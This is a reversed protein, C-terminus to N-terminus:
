ETVALMEELGLVLAEVLAVGGLAQCALISPHTKLLGLHPGPEPAPDEKAGAAPAATAEDGEEREAEGHPAECAPPRPPQSALLTAERRKRFQIFQRARARTATVYDM